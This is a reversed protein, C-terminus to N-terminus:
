TTSDTFIQVEALQLYTSDALQVRVYRGTEEFNITTQTGVSSSVHFWRVGPQNLSTDLDNSTFPTPSSMVYFNSLRSSCCDTRNWLKIQGIAENAGLDVQWWPQSAWQTMALSGSSSNGNTDGDVANSAGYDGSRTSIQSAPKGLALNLPLTNNSVINWTFTETDSFEGDSVTVSVTHTGLSNSSGVIRELGSEFSMGPPLGTVTWTLPDNNPDDASLLLSVNENRETYQGGPNEVDPAENPGPNPPPATTPDSGDFSSSIRSWVQSPDNNERVVITVEKVQRGSSVNRWVAYTDVRYLRGDAGNLTQVPVMTTCPNSGCAPLDVRNAATAEYAADGTYTADQSTVQADVLGISRWEIGRLREMETNALAGATTTHSARRIHVMGSVLMATVALIGVLLIAM